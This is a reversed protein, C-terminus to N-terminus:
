VIGVQEMRKENFPFYKMEPRGSASVAMWQLLSKLQPDGKFAGCGWNGTAVLRLTAKRLEYLSPSFVLGVSLSVDLSTRSGADHLSQLFTDIKTMGKSIPINSDKDYEATSLHEVIEQPLACAQIADRIIIDAMLTSLDTINNVMNIALTDLETPSSPLSDEGRTSTTSWAISMRSSPPNLTRPDMFDTTDTFSGPRNRSSRSGSAGGGQHRSVYPKVRQGKSKSPFPKRSPSSGGTGGGASSLGVITKRPSVPVLVSGLINTALKDAYSNSFSTNTLQNSPSKETDEVSVQLLPVSPVRSSAGGDEEHM